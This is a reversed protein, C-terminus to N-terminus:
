VWTRPQKLVSLLAAERSGDEPQHNYRWHVEPPLSMLISEVRGETELGFLTGRDYVLNFEVYRGRRLYQWQKERQGWAESKRRQAIPVYVNVFANGLEQVFAWTKDRDEKLYDFFVGGVGRTEGRHKIFFYEDCWQKFVPYFTPDHKDCAEKLSQHFHRADEEFLYCPTLDMGGGFWAEGNALELYRLNMHVIPVMPSVPHLVLSIGTAFINQPKVGLRVALTPSLTSTIASFNVGAKEFVNGQQLIRTKGGGSEKHAWVDQSFKAKGDLQELATCISNQLSKVYDEVRRKFVINTPETPM